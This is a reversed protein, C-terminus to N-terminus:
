SQMSSWSTFVNVPADPLPAWPGNIEGVKLGAMERQKARVQCSRPYFNAQRIYTTGCFSIEATLFFFWGGLPLRQNSHIVLPYGYCIDECYLEKVRAGWKVHFTDSPWVKLGSQFFDWVCGWSGSVDRYGTSIVGASPEPNPSSWDVQPTRGATKGLPWLCFPDHRWPLSGEQFFVSDQQKRDWHQQLPLLESLDGFSVTGIECRASLHM